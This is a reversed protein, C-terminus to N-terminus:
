HLLEPEDSEVFDAAWMKELGYLEREESHFIHVIVEATDVLVWRNEPKGSVSFVEIGMKKFAMAVHGALAGIHTTSSGTAIILGDAMDSKGELDISVVDQASKNNLLGEIFQNLSQKSLAHPQANETHIFEVV